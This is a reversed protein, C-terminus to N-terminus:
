YRGNRGGRAGGGHFRDQHVRNGGANGSEMMYQNQRQHMDSYQMHQNQVNRENYTRDYRDENANISRWDMVGGASNMGKNQNWTNMSVANQSNFKSQIVPPEPVDWDQESHHHAFREPVTM